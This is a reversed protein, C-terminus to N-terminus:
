SRQVLAFVFICSVCMYSVWFLMHGIMSLCEVLCHLHTLLFSDVYMYFAFITEVFM